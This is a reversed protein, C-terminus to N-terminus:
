KMLEGIEAATRIGDELAARIGEGSVPDVKLACDGIVFIGPLAPKKLTGAGVIRGLPKRDYVVPGPGFFRQEAEDYLRKLDKKRDTNWVGINWLHDGVPFAWAYRDGYEDSFFYHFADDELACDGAVRASIGAPLGQAELLGFRIGGQVGCALVPFRCRYRGDIVYMGGADKEIGRCLTDFRVPVDHGLATELLSRNLIDRSLGLEYSIGFLESFSRKTIRDDRYEKKFYVKKGGLREADIGLDKLLGISAASVGDGCVTGTVDSEAELVLCSVHKKSLEIACALGAPGAGIIVADYTLM